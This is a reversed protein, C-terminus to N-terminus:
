IEKKVGVGWGGGDCGGGQRDAVGGGSCSTMAIYASM